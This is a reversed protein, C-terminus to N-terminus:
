SGIFQGAAMSPVCVVGQSDVKKTPKSPAKITEVVSGKKDQQAEKAAKFERMGAARGIERTGM